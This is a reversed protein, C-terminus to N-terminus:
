HPDRKVRLREWLKAYKLFVYYSGLVAIILGPLGDLLGLRLIYMRLFKWPPNLLINLLAHTKGARLMKDAALSTFEDIVRLHDSINRYTYHLIDHRLKGVPGEVTMSEHVTDPEWHGKGRRALRTKRDPYWGGHKIWRGLYFTRRPITFGAHPIDDRSLLSRIERALEPSLREDADLNLVWDGSAKSMAFEKQPGYGQWPHRIVHDTYERAIHPTRDASGSDVVIIEDAWKVSELCHRINEEEDRCIVVVSLKKPSRIM